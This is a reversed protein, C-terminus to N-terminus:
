QADEELATERNFERLRNMALRLHQASSRRDSDYAEVAGRIATRLRANEAYAARLEPMAAEAIIRSIQKM